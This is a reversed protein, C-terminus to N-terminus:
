LLQFLLDSFQISQFQLRKTSPELAVAGFVPVPLDFGVRFATFQAPQGLPSATVM